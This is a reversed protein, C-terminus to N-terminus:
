TNAQGDLWARRLLANVVAAALGAGGRSGELRVQPWGSRALAAKAEQVAVFGVPMGVVLVPPELRDQTGLALLHLLATPASGIVVVSGPHRQVAAALGLATRTQGPPAPDPAWVLGNIVPNAFTRRAMPTVAAAAMATDTLIPAGRALATMAQECAAAPCRLATALRWDGSSHILRVLVEQQVGHLGTAPLRRQILALSETLIPHDIPSPEM